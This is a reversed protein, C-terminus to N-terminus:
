SHNKHLYMVYHLDIMIARLKKIDRILVVAKAFLKFRRDRTKYYQPLFSTRWLERLKMERTIIESVVGDMSRALIENRHM